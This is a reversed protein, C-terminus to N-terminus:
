PLAYEEPLAISFSLGQGVCGMWLCWDRFEKERVIAKLQSCGNM